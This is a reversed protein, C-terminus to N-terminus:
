NNRKKNSRRKKLSTRKQGGQRRAQQRDLEANLRLFITNVREAVEAYTLNGSLLNSFDIIDASVFRIHNPINATNDGFVANRYGTNPRIFQVLTGHSNVRLIIAPQNTYYHRYDDFGNVLVYDRPQLNNVSFRIFSIVLNIRNDLQERPIQLIGQFENADSPRLHQLSIEACNCGYTQYITGLNYEQQIFKVVHLGNPRVAMIIAPQNSYRPGNVLVLNGVNM